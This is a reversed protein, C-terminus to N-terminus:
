DPVLGHVACLYARSIRQDFYASAGITGEIPRSHESEERTVKKEYIAHLDQPALQGNAVLHDILDFLSELALRNHDQECNVIVSGQM